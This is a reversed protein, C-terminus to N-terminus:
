RFCREMRSPAITMSLSALGWDNDVLLGNKGYRGSTLPLLTRLLPGPAPYPYLSVVSWVPPLDALGPSGNGCWTRLADADIEGRWIHVASQDELWAPLATDVSVWLLVPRDPAHQRLWELGDGFDDLSEGLLVRRAGQWLPMVEAWTSVVRIDGSEIQHVFNDVGAHGSAVVIM